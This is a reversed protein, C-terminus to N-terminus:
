TVAHTLMRLIEWRPHMWICELSCTSNLGPYSTVESPRLVSALTWAHSGLTVAAVTILLALRPTLGDAAALSVCRALSLGALCTVVLSAALSAKRGQAAYQLAFPVELNPSRFTLPGDM